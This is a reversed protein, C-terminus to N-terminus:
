LWKTPIIILLVMPNLPVRNESVGLDWRDLHLNVGLFFVSSCGTDQRALALSEQSRCCVVPKLQLPYILISIYHYVTYIYIYVYIYYIYIYIDLHIPRNSHRFIPQAENGLAEFMNSGSRNELSCFPYRM